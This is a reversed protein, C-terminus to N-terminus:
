GWTFMVVAAAIMIIEFFKMIAITSSNGWFNQTCFFYNCSNLSSDSFVGGPDRTSITRVKRWFNNDLYSSGTIITYILEPVNILFLGIFILLLRYKGDNQKEEDGMSTIWLFGVYGM